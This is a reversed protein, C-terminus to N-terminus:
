KVFDLTPFSGGLITSPDVGLWQQLVTAYISRFDTQFVLNGSQDLHSLDPASGQIGGNVGPGFAFLPAATGHDTGQSGNEKVRRGFESWTMM